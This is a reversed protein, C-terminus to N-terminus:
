TQPRLNVAADYESVSDFVQVCTISDGVDAETYVVYVKGGYEYADFADTSARRNALAGLVERYADFNCDWYGGHWDTLKRPLVDDSLLKALFDDYTTAPINGLIAQAHAIGANQWESDDIIWKDGNPLTIM